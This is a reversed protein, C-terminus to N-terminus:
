THQSACLLSLSLSLSLNQEAKQLHRLIVVNPSIEGM